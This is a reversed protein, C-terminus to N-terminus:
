AADDDGRGFRAELISALVRCADTVTFIGVLKDKRVVLASGIHRDAMDTLVRALPANLDVVYPDSVCVQRVRIRERHTPDLARNVLLGIDRETAVGVLRGDEEVPVHRVGHERMIAEARTVPEDIRVSHPFPTMVAKILPMHDLRRLDM